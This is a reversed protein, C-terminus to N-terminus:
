LYREKFHSILANAGLPRGLAKEITAPSTRLMGQDHIHKKHFANIASFDGAEVMAEWASIETKMKTFLEAALLNGLSYTPFYGFNGCYWHIDQLVGLAPDTVKLGLLNEFDRNWREPLDRVDLRGEILDEEILFRLYIHLNYTIEDAEVRIFTRDVTQLKKVLAEADVGCKKALFRAFPRSRAIFNEYFRSQSEHIGSSAAQGCPTLMMPLNQEYLAHGTEHIVGTLAETFDEPNYRTTIRVDRYLNTCFPHTSKALKGKEFNLGLSKAIEGCLKEQKDEPMKFQAEFTQDQVSRRALVQPLIKKTETVLESLVSRMGAAPFGPEYFDMLVEYRSRGGYYSKLAPSSRLREAYEQSFRIVEQLEEAILSFDKKPRAENQWKNQCDVNARTFAGVFKEDVAEAQLVELKMRGIQSKQEVNEFKAADLSKVTECYRPDTKLRHSLKSMVELIEGREGASGRPMATEMDWSLVASGFNLLQMERYKELAEAYNKQM